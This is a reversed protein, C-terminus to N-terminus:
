RSGPCGDGSHVMRRWPVVGPTTWLRPTVTPGYGGAPVGTLMTADLTRRAGPRVDVTIIGVARRRERGSGFPQRVGDLRMGVMTGGTPSYVVVNTRITYPDGALGLGLVYSPLGSRPATSGLVIRLTIERRGDTRCAPTVTVEADHTLYYGLKAGSGDNLFVGVTPDVGDGAPLVGALVTNELLRNEEDRTSWVLLRREGAARSLAGLLAPPDLPRGLLARFIARTAAAFYADQREPSIDDRYLRSLLLPVANEASLSEGGTVPVPGLVALLYSLAVPDTSLVGDVAVGTRRRYMERAIEGTTPFHPTLNVDAPFTALKDTYLRRDAPTLAVVPREFPAIGAATGQDVINIKGHDAEIVVFAGPMGGTARVEALNQFLVLYTRRGNAGLMAPLLTASKAAVAVTRAADRMEARLQLVAVRIPAALRGVTIAGVADRARRMAADAAVLQPAARQLPTLDIRGDRPVLSGARVLGATAVLQPLGDRALDDLTSAIARVATLDDGAVPLHAGARWIPDDLDARAARTEIQLRALTQTAAPDVATLQRRLQQVLTAAQELHDRSGIVHM